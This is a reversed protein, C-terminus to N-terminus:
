NAAATGIGCQRRARDLAAPDASLRRSKAFTEFSVPADRPAAACVCTGTWAAIGCDPGAAVPGSRAGGGILLLPFAVALAALPLVGLICRLRAPM